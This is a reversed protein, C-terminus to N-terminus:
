NGHIEERMMPLVRMVDAVTYFSGFAAIRDNEEASLYAQHFATTVDAFCHVQVGPAVKRLCTSLTDADAGRPHQIPALFWTDVEGALVSIVGAIDKDGLMAFVALTRGRHPHIRLNEALGRAAHPNHAVDLIVNPAGDFVQFRGQLAVHLLGACVAEHTVPLQQLSHLAELACSANSLQFSGHLAPLPLNQLGKGSSVFDWTEGRLVYGFDVGIQRFKAGMRKAYAEVTVPPRPEGCLAPIGKRYIGAKEQGISERTSGLYDMHDLDVSTVIACSPDFMNVADLRGGLGVELIAVDVGAQVFLWMAALTGFEFYTLPTGERAEEVVAFAACLQSDTAEEGNVRVRENYRLLHPSTYCAVRYGMELSIRELIACTSGKGNTGGVTIIPFEPHLALRGRVQEVRDLGLAISKPHLQELYDLWGVLDAPITSAPKPL